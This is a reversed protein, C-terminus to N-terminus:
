RLNIRIEKKSNGSVTFAADEFSPPGMIGKADNSFGYRDKPIGFLGTKMKGDGDSDHFASIAYKGEPIGSLSLKVENNQINGQLSKFAKEPTDPFGEKNDFLLVQVTGLDSKTNTIVIELDNQDQFVPITMLLLFLQYITM